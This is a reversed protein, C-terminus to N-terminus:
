ILNTFQTEDRGVTFLNAIPKSYKIIGNNKDSIMLAIDSKPIVIYYNNPNNDSQKLSDAHDLIYNLLQMGDVIYLCDSVEDIFVYTTGSYCDLRNKNVNISFNRSRYYKSSNRKINLYKKAGNSYCIIGTCESDGTASRMFRIGSKSYKKNLLMEVIPEDVLKTRNLTCNEKIM